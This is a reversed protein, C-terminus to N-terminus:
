QQTTEIFTDLRQEFTKIMKLYRDRFDEADFISEEGKYTIMNIGPEYKQLTELTEPGWYEIRCGCLRAVELMATIKDYVYLVECENLLDALAQQDTAFARTIEVADTPHKYLNTGRACYFSTKTRKKGQDKFMHLNIIPLFLVHDDDAGFTDYIKSFVYIHDATDKIEQTSPGPTGYSAMLGATQLVYRVVTDGELPNGSYIEPYIAISNPVKTNIFVTEGKALLWGYLGWMVRIGGSTLDYPPTLISYAKRM